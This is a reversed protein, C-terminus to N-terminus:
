SQRWLRDHKYERWRPIRPGPPWSFGIQTTDQGIGRTRDEQSLIPWTLRLAPPWARVALSPDNVGGLRFVRM